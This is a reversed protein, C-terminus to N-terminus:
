SLGFTPKLALLPSSVSQYFTPNASRPVPLVNDGIKVLSIHLYLPRFIVGVTNRTPPSVSDNASQSTDFDVDIFLVGIEGKSRLGLSANAGSTLATRLANMAASIKEPTLVEGVTLPIQVPVAWPTKRGFWDAKEVKVYRVRLNYAGQKQARQHVKKEDDGERRSGAGVEVSTVDPQALCLRGDM